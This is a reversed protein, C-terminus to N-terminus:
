AERAESGTTEQVEHAKALKPDTMESTKPLTWDRPDSQGSLSGTCLGVAVRAPLLLSMAFALAVVAIVVVVLM